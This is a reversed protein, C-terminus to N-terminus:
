YPITTSQPSPVSERPPASADVTKVVFFYRVNTELGGVIITTAEVPENNFKSYDRDSERRYYVNYGLISTAQPADWKLLASGEGADASLYPPAPPLPGSPGVTRIEGVNSGPIPLSVLPWIEWNLAIRHTDGLSSFPAFAYDVRLTEWRVGIGAALGVLGSLDTKRVAYGARLAFYRGGWFEVGFAPNLLNAPPLFYDLDAAAILQGFESELGKWAVALKAQMPLPDKKSEFASATGLNMVAGGVTLGRVPTMLVGADLTGGSSNFDSIKENLIKAGAGVTINEMLTRAWALRVLFSSANFSKVSTGEISGIDLFNVSAGVTGLYPIIHAGAVSGFNVDALWRSYMFSVQSNTLIGLGAPNYELAGLDDAVAGFAGAMGAARASLGIKLFESQTAGAGAHARAALGAALVAVTAV